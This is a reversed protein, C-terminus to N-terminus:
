GKVGVGGTKGDFVSLLAFATDELLPTEGEVGTWPTFANWWNMVVVPGGPGSGSANGGVGGGISGGINMNSGVGMGGGGGGRSTIPGDPTPIGSSYFSQQPQSSYFQLNQSSDSPTSYYNSM